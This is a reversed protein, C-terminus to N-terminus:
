YISDKMWRSYISGGVETVQSRSPTPDAPSVRKVLRKSTFGGRAGRQARLRKLAFSYTQEYIGREGLVKSVRAGVVAVYFLESVHEFM